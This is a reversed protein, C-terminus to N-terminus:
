KKTQIGLAKEYLADVKGAIMKIDIDRQELQARLLGIEQDKNRLQQELDEGAKYSALAESAIKNIENVDVDEWGLSLKKIKKLAEIPSLNMTTM